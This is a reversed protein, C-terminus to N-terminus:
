GGQPLCRNRPRSINHLMHKEHITGMFHLIYVDFIFIVISFVFNQFGLHM